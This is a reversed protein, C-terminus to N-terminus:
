TAQKDIWIPGGTPILDKRAGQKELPWGLLSRLYNPVTLGAQRAREDLDTKQEETLYLIVKTDHVRPM